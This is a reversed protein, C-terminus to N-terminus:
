HGQARRVSLSWVDKRPDYHKASAGGLKTPELFGAHKLISKYQFFSTSRFHEGRVADWNIRGHDDTVQAEPKLFFIPARAHDIKDCEQALELFSARREQFRELGKHILAVVPDRLLLLRLVAAADSVHEALTGGGARKIRRHVDGWAELSPLVTRAAEGLPSLHFRRGDREVLGLKEAGAIAARRDKPMPYGVLHVHNLEVSEGPELAIAWALYHTPLNYTFTRRTSVHVVSEMQRAIFRHPELWPKRLEPEHILHVDEDVAIVGVGKSKAHRVWTTGLASADAALCTAHFGSQYVEAQAIGKLVDRTGKAEVAIITEGDDLRGVLDPHMVVDDLKLTFRQFPRLKPEVLLTPHADTYLQSVGYGRIKNRGLFARTRSVIELEEMATGISITCRRM